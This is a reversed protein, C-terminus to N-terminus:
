AASITIAALSWCVACGTKNSFPRYCSCTAAPKQWCSTFSLTPKSFRKAPVQTIDPHTILRLHRARLRKLMQRDVHLGPTLLATPEIMLRFGYSNRLAVDSNLTQLFRWGHGANRAILGDESLKVLTRTLM